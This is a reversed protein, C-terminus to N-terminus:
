KGVCFKSFVVNLLSESADLGLLSAIHSRAEAVCSAAADDAGLEMAGRSEELASLAHALCDMQRSTVGYGGSLAQGGSAQEIIMDRLEDIGEGSISSVSILPSDPFQAAMDGVTTRPPLDRKNLVIIHPRRVVESGLSIDDQTLEEAGDAVWLCLDAREMSRMSDNVGISEIEDSTDRIGATDIIRVPVGRHIFTEEIRDRTTGPIPTVIARKERLLMNLLSSKGVNPRGVIATNIGERLLLGARCHSILNHGRALADAILSKFEDKPLLGEGEEPFDLDVELQAALATLLDLFAKLKETFEGQLTRASAALAEDSKAKIVGLVAEARSLDIRGNIFARRTFEGPSALRAGAACLEEVCKQAPLAGGHCQIEVSEEGTYSSGAEFRVALAEDFVSGERDALRGLAMYRAPRRSLPVKSRFVKEAAETCGGGSLRVIAIGSEGWATAAAAIIDEM